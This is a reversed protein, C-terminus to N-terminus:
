VPTTAPLSEEAGPHPALAACTDIKLSGVYNSLVLFSLSVGTTVRLSNSDQRADPRLGSTDKRAGAGRKPRKRPRAARAKANAPAAPKDFGICRGSSRKIRQRRR